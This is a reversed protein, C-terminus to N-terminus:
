VNNPGLLEEQVVVPPNPIVPNSEPITPTINNDVMEGKGAAEKEKLYEVHKEWTADHIDIPDIFRYFHIFFICLIYYFVQM